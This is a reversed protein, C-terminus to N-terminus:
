AQYLSILNFNNSYIGNEVFSFKEQFKILLDDPIDFKEKFEEIYDPYIINKPYNMSCSKIPFNIKEKNEEYQPSCINNGM